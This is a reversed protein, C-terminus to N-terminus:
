GQREKTDEGSEKGAGIAGMWKPDLYKVNLYPSKDGDKSSHAM